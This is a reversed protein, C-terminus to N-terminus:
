QGKRIMWAVAYYSGGIFSDIYAIDKDMTRRSVLAKTKHDSKRNIVEYMQPTRRTCLFYHGGDEYRVRLLVIGGGDLHDDLDQLSPYEIKDFSIIDITELASHLDWPRTGGDEPTCNCIPIFHKRLASASDKSGAWKMANALAVPGCSYNDRQKIYRM